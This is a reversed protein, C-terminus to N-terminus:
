MECYGYCHEDSHAGLRQGDLKADIIIFGFNEAWEYIFNIYYMNNM